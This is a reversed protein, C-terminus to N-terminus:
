VPSKERGWLSVLKLLDARAFPKALHDDFGSALCREKEELLALATLAVLRGRYGKARLRQVTEIGDIVPMHVDLIGVDFKSAELASMAEQGDSATEVAAGAEELMHRILLQNDPSDEAVLVRLGTLPKRPDFEQSAAARAGPGTADAVDLPLALKFVSGQGVASRELSVEGGLAEALRKSLALGLGTGGFKRTTSEDAQRFPQFLGDQHEAAIGIGTDEIAFVLRNKEVRLIARVGGQSTFKVANGILNNLIQRVRTPDTLVREPVGSVIERRISIHKKDAEVRMMSIAEDLIAAPNTPLSELRLRNAEVKSLDLIDDIIQMLTKGSRRIIEFYRQRDTESRGPESALETFGLIASLPTRIEHSMNALFASKMRNASEADLKAKELAELAQERDTIDEHILVVECVRGSPDKLPFAKGGVLRARGPKGAQAPDYLLPPIVQPEGQFALKVLDLVGRAELIPDELMNYEKMIYSEIFEDSVEFISKWASNVMLTRGDSSLLQVSIPSQEFLTRFRRESDALAQQVRTREEIERKLKTNAEELEATRERVRRELDENLAKYNREAERQKTVDHLAVMAGIKEGAEDNIPEGRAILTRRIGEREVVIEADRVKEGALARYLPIEEEPLPTVGDAKFLKYHQVWVEPLIPAAPLGHYDRSVRNVLTLVGNEDCAVVGEALNELVIRLFERQRNLDDNPDSPPKQM